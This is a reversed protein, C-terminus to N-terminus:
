SSGHALAEWQSYIDTGVQMLDGLRKQSLRRSELFHGLKATFEARTCRLKAHHNPAVIWAKCVLHLSKVYYEPDPRQCKSLHRFLGNRTGLLADKGTALNVLFLPCHEFCCHHRLLGSSDDLELQDTKARALNLQSVEYPQFLRPAQHHSAVFRMQEASAIARRLERSSALKGQRLLRQQEMVYDLYMEGREKKAMSELTARTGAGLLLAMYGEAREAREERTISDVAQAFLAVQFLKPKAELTPDLNAQLFASMSVQHHQLHHFIGMDSENRALLAGLALSAVVAWVSCNTQCPQSFFNLTYNYGLALDVQGNSHDSRVSEEPIGLAGRLMRRAVLRRKRVVVRVQRAVAEAVLAVRKYSSAHEPFLCAVCVAEAVSAVGTTETKPGVWSAFEGDDLKWGRLVHQLRASHQDRMAFSQMVQFIRRTTHIFPLVTDATYDPLKSSQVDRWKMLQECSRVFSAFVLALYQDPLQLTPNRTLMSANFAKFLIRSRAPKSPELLLADPVRMGWAVDKRVVGLDIEQMIEMTREDPVVESSVMLIKVLFPDIASVDTRVVKVRVADCGLRTTYLMEVLSEHPSDVALHCERKAQLLVDRDDGILLLSKGARKLMKAGFKFDLPKCIWEAKTATAATSAFLLTATSVENLAERLNTQMAAVVKRTRMYDLVEKQDDQNTSLNTLIPQDALLRALNLFPEMSWGRGAGLRASQCLTQMAFLCEAIDLREGVLHVHTWDLGEIENPPPTEGTTVFLLTHKARDQDVVPFSLTRDPFLHASGVFGDGVPTDWPVALTRSNSSMFESVSDLDEAVTGFLADIDNTSTQTYIFQDHEYAAQNLAGWCAFGLVIAESPTPNLAVLKCVAMTGSGHLYKSMADVTFDFRTEEEVAGGLVVVFLELAARITIREPMALEEETLKVNNARKLRIAEQRNREEWTRDQVDRVSRQLTKSVCVMCANSLGIDEEGDGDEEEQDFILELAETSTFFSKGLNSKCAVSQRAGFVTVDCCQLSNLNPGMQSAFTSRTGCASRHLVLHRNAAVPAQEVQKPISLGWFTRITKRSSSTDRQVCIPFFCPKPKNPAPEWTFPRVGLQAHNTWTYQMEAVPLVAEPKVVYKGDGLALCDYTHLDHCVAPLPPIPGSLHTWRTVACYWRAHVLQDENTDFDFDCHWCPFKVWHVRNPHALCVQATCVGLRDAGHAEDDLSSVVLQGQFRGINKQLPVRSQIGWFPLVLGGPKAEALQAFSVINQVSQLTFRGDKAQRAAHPRQARLQRLFFLQSMETLTRMGTPALVTGTVHVRVHNWDEIRVKSDLLVTGTKFEKPTLLLPSLWVVDPSVAISGSACDFELCLGSNM